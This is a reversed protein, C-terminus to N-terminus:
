RYYGMFYEEDQLHFPLAPFSTCGHVSPARRPPGPHRDDRHLRVEPATDPPLDGRQQVEVIVHEDDAEGGVAVERLAEDVWM